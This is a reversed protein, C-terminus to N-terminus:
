KEEKYGHKDSVEYVQNIADRYEFYEKLAEVYDDMFDSFNQEQESAQQKLFDEAFSPNDDRLNQEDFKLLEAIKLAMGMRLGKTIGELRAILAEDNSDM